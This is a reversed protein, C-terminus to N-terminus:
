VTPAVTYTVRVRDFRPTQHMQRCLIDLADCIVDDSPSQIYSVLLEGTDRCYRQLLRVGSSPGRTWVITDDHLLRWSNMPYLYTRLHNGVVRAVVADELQCTILVKDIELCTLDELSKALRRTDDQYLRVATVYLCRNQKRVPIWCRRLKISLESGHVMNRLPSLARRNDVM